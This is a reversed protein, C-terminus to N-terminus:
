GKTEEQEGNNNCTEDDLIAYLIFLVIAVCVLTAFSAFMIPFYRVDVGFLEAVVAAPLLLCALAAIIFIITKATTLKM